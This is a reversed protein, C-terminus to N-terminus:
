IPRECCGATEQRDTRSLKCWTHAAELLLQLIWRQTVLVAWLIADRHSATVCTCFSQAASPAMSIDANCAIRRASSRCDTPHWSPALAVPIRSRPDCMFHCSLEANGMTTEAFEACAWLHALRLQDMGELFQPFLIFCCRPIACCLGYVANLHQALLHMNDSTRIQVIRACRDSSASGALPRVSSRMSDATVRKMRLLESAPATDSSAARNPALPSEIPAAVKLLSIRDRTRRKLM